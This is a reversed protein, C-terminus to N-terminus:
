PHISFGSGGGTGFDIHDLSTTIGEVCSVADNLNNIFVSGQFAEGGFPKNNAKTQPITGIIGIGVAFGPLEVSFQLNAPRVVAVTTTKSGTTNTLKVILEPHVFQLGTTNLASCTQGPSLKANFTIVAGTIPAKGGIVGGSTCAGTAKHIKVSTPKTSSPPASRPLAPKFTLTGDAGCNLIGTPPEQSAGATGITLASCV